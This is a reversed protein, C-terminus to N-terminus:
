KVYLALKEQGEVMADHVVTKHNDFLTEFAVRQKLTEEKQKLNEQKLAEISDTLSSLQDSTVSPQQTIASLPSVAEAHFSTSAAKSVAKSERSPSGPISPLNPFSAVDSAAEPIDQSVVSSWLQQGKQKKAQHKQQSQQKQQNQSWHQKKQPAQNTAGTGGATVRCADLYRESATGEGRADDGPAAYGGRTDTKRVIAGLDTFSLTGDEGNKAHEFKKKLFAVLHKDLWLRALGLNVRECQFHWEDPNRESPQIKSFLQFTSGNASKGKANTLLLSALCRDASLLKADGEGGGSLWPADM